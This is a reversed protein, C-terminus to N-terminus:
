APRRLNVKAGSASREIRGLRWGPELMLTVFVSRGTKRVGTVRAGTVRPRARLAGEVASAEMVLHVMGSGPQNAVGVVLGGSGTLTLAAGAKTRQLGVSRLLPVPRPPPLVVPPPAGMPATGPGPPQPLPGSAVIPEPPPTAVRLRPAPLPSPDDDPGEDIPPAAAPAREREMALLIRRARAHAPDESALLAARVEPDLTGGAFATRAAALLPDGADVEALAAFSAQARAPAEDHPCGCVFVAVILIRRV